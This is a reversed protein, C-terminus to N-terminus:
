LNRYIYIYIYIYEVERLEKMNGRTEMINIYITKIKSILMDIGAEFQVTNKDKYLLGTEYEGSKAMRAM